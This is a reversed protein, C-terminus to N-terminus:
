AVTVRSLSWVCLSGLPVPLNRAGSGGPGVAVAVPGGIQPDLIGGDNTRM